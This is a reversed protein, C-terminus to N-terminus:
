TKEKAVWGFDSIIYFLHLITTLNDTRGVVSVRFVHNRPTIGPELGLQTDGKNM